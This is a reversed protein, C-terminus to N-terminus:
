NALVTQISFLPILPINEKELNEAGGQERDVIVFAALVKGGAERVIEVAQLTSGGTTMVDEVMVVNDGSQFNGEITKQTGHDKAKKRTIFVRLPIGRERAALGVATVIPDAGISMGGVADVQADLKEIEDLLLHGTLYAGEPDFTTKKGDIYYTSRKGSALVFDGRLLSKERLIQLLREKEAM